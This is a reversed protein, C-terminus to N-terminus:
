QWLRCKCYIYMKNETFFKMCNITDFIVIIKLSIWSVSLLDWMYLLFLDSYSHCTGFPWDRTSFHKHLKVNKQRDTLIWKANNDTTPLKFFSQLECVCMYIYIYVCVCVSVHCPYSRWMGFVLKVTLLESCCFWTIWCIGVVM